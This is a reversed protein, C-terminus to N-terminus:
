GAGNRHGNHAMLPLRPLRLTRHRGRLPRLRIADDIVYSGKVRRISRVNHTPLDAGSQKLLHDDFEYRRISYQLCKLRFTLKKVHIVLRKFSNLRHPYAKIDLDIDNVVKPTILGACLKTRPFTERRGAPSLHCL